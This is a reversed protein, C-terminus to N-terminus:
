SLTKTRGKILYAIWFPVNMLFIILLANNYAFKLNMILYIMQHMMILSVATVFAWGRNRLGILAILELFFGSGYALTSVFPHHIMWMAIPPLEALAPDLDKYYATRHAKVLDVAIYRANFVWMGKSNILKTVAALVYTGLILGQSYYVMYSGLSLGGGPRWKEKRRWELVQVTWVVITQTLLTLTVIQFGHHTFGQSNAWTRVLISCVTIVPLSTLLAIRAFGMVYVVLAGTVIHRIGDLVAHNALFNIPLFRAIGTAKSISDFKYPNLDLFSHYVVAAFLLRMIFWEWRSTPLPVFYGEQWRMFWTKFRSWFTSM